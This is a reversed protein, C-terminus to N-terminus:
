AGEAEEIVIKRKNVHAYEVAAEFAEGTMYRKLDEVKFVAIEDYVEKGIEKKIAAKDFAIAKRGKAGVKVVYDGAQLETGESADVLTDVYELLATEGAAVEAQLAALKALKAELALKDAVFKQVVADIVNTPAKVKVKAKTKVISLAM